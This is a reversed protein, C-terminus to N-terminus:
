ETDQLSRIAPLLDAAAIDGRIFAEYRQSSSPAASAAPIAIPINWVALHHMFMISTGVGKDSFLRLAAIGYDTLRRM